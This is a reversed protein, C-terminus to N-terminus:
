RINIWYGLHQQIATQDSIDSKSIKGLEIKQELALLFNKSPNKIEETDSLFIGNRTGM